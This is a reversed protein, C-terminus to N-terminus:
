NGDALWCQQLSVVSTSAMDAAGLIVSRQLCVTVVVKVGFVYLLLIGAKRIFLPCM